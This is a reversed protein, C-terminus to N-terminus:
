VVGPRMKKRYLFTKRTKKLVAKFTMGLLFIGAVFSILQGSSTLPTTSVDVNNIKMTMEVQVIAFAGFIFQFVTIGAKLTWTDDEKDDVSRDSESMDDGARDGVINEDSRNEDSRNEDSRNEDATRCGGVRGDTASGNGGNDVVTRNHIANDGQKGLMSRGLRFIGLVLFGVGLVCAVVSGTRLVARWKPNEVNVTCFLVFVKVACGEKHGVDVGKFWVWLQDAVIMLWIFGLIGFSFWTRNSLITKTPIFGLTLVFTMSYVIWWEVAVLSGHSVNLFTNVYVSVTVSYSLLRAPEVQEQAIWTAFVVAVWQLYYNLRIGLGYVDADGVIECNGSGEAYRTAAAAPSVLIFILSTPDLLRAFRVTSSALLCAHTRMQFGCGPALDKHKSM